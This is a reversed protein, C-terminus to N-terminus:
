KQADGLDRRRTRSVPALRCDGQRRCRPAVRARDKQSYSIFVAAMGKWRRPTREGARGAVMLRGAGACDLGREGPSISGKGGAGMGTSDIRDFEL